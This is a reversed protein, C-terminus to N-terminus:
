GLERDHGSAAAPPRAGRSSIWSERDARLTRGSRVASVSRFTSSPSLHERDSSSSVSYDANEDDNEQDDKDEVEDTAGLKAAAM